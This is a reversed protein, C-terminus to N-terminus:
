SGRPRWPLPLALLLTVALSVLSLGDLLDLWRPTAFSFPRREAFAAAKDREEVRFPDGPSCGNEEPFVYCAPNKINLAGNTERWISGPGMDKVPMHELRYGFLPYYCPHQSLSPLMALDVQTTPAFRGVLRVPPFGDLAHQVENPGPDHGLGHFYHTRDPVWLWLSSVLMVGASLLQPRPLRQLVLAAMCAGLPVYAFWLRVLWSYSGIVPVRKLFANWGPSYYNLLWLSLCWIAIALSWRSWLRAPREKWVRWAGFLLLLLVAPGVSYEFEHRQVGWRMNVYALPPDDGPLFFLWRVWVLANTWLSDIGPLPYDTRPFQRLLAVGLALKSAGIGVGLATLGVVRRWRVPRWLRALLLLPVMSAVSLTAVSAPHAIAIAGTLLAALANWARRESLLGWLIVPFLMVSHFSAHGIIIRHFYFGNCMYVTAGALAPWPGCRFVDRLCRWMGWWGVAACLLAAAYTAAVPRLFLTFLFFPSVVPYDPHPAMPVGGCWSPSFWHRALVGHARVWQAWEVAYPMGLAYDPGLKGTADPFFNGLLASYSLCVLLFALWVYM